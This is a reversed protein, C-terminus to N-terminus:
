RQLNKKEIYEIEQKELQELKEIMKYIGKRSLIRM